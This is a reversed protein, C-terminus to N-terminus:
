GERVRVGPSGRVLEGLRGMRLLSRVGVWDAVFVLVYVVPM